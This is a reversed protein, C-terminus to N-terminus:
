ITCILPTSYIKCLESVMVIYNWSMQMVRMLFEASSM